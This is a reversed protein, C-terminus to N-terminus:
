SNKGQCYTADQELQQQKTGRYAERVEAILAVRSIYAIGINVDELV